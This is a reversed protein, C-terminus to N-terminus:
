NDDPLPPTPRKLGTKNDQSMGMTNGEQRGSRSYHFDKLRMQMSHSIISFVREVQKNVSEFVFNLKDSLRTMPLSLAGQLKQASLLKCKQVALFLNRFATEIRKRSLINPQKNGGQRVFNRYEEALVETSEEIELVLPEVIDIQEAPDEIDKSEVIDILEEAYDYFKMIENYADEHESKNLALM